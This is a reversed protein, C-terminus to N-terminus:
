RALDVQLPPDTREPRPNDILITVLVAAAILAIAAAAAAAGYGHVLASVPSVSPAHDRLYSATASIAVTNLVATGISGGMQSATNVVAAAVGAERPSVGATALSFAPPFVAGM